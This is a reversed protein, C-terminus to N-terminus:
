KILLMIGAALMALVALVGAAVLLSALLIVATRRKPKLNRYADGTALIAALTLAIALWCLALGALKTLM